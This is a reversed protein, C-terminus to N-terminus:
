YERGVVNVDPIGDVDVADNTETPESKSANNKPASSFSENSITTKNNTEAAGGGSGVTPKQEATDSKTNKEGAAPMGLSSNDDPKQSQITSSIKGISLFPVLCHWQVTTTPVSPTVTDTQQLQTLQQVLMQAQTQNTAGAPM